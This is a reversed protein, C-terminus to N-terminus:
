RLCTTWTPRSTTTGTCPRRASQASTRFESSARSAQTSCVNVEREIWGTVETDAPGGHPPQVQLRRGRASQAVADRRDRRRTGAQPEPQAHPDRTLDRAHTHLRGPRRGDCRRRPGGAGGPDHAGGAGVAFAHRSWSVTTRRHRARGPVPVGGRDDRARAGRQLQGRAFHWPAGLDRLLRPARTRVSGAPRKLLCRGASRCGGPHVPGAAARRAPEGEDDRVESRGDQGRWCARSPM